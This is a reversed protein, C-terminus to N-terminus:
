GIRVTGIQWPALALPSSIPGKPQGALDVETLRDSPGRLRVSAPTGRYEFVRLHPAGNRPYLASVVAGPSDAEVPQMLSGLRGSGPTSGAAVLPFNFELARRHLDAGQWAGEFPWLAFDYTYAGRLMVTRWVYFMAFALVVSFGGDQEGLSGMAGRNFIALGQRGDSQATWCVGQVYPDDTESIGFPVDRSGAVTGSFHPLLKFRLKHEHVFASHSDRVVDSVVCIRQNDIQFSSHCDM